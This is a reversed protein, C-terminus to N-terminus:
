RAHFDANAFAQASKRQRVLAEHLAATRAAVGAASLRKYFARRASEAARAVQRETADPGLREQAERTFRALMNNRAPKTGAARDTTGARPQHAPIRTTAPRTV